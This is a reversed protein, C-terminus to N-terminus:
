PMARRAWGSSTSAHVRARARGERGLAARVVVGRDLPEAVPREEGIRLVQAVPAEDRDEVTVGADARSPLDELYGPGVFDGMWQPDFVFADFSNTKTSMDLLAKDYLDQFGVATVNVKAGTLKEFDPARRQLPEAVQPGNFTLLNVTVGSFDAAAASAKRDAQRDISQAM